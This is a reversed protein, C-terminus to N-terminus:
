KLQLQLRLRHRFWVKLGTRAGALIDRSQGARCCQHYRYNLCFLIFLSISSLPLSCPPRNYNPLPRVQSQSNLLSFFINLSDTSMGITFDVRFVCLSPWCFPVPLSLFCSVDLNVFNILCAPTTSIGLQDLHQSYSRNWIRCNRWYFKYDKGPLM